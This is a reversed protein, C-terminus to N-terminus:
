AKPQHDGAAFYTSVSQHESPAMRPGPLEIPNCGCIFTRPNQGLDEGVEDWMERSETSVYIPVHEDYKRVERSLFRYIEARTEHPFPGTRVDEMAEAQYRAAAVCEPDLLDLDMKEALGDLSMWMVVCFGVSEPRVRTFIDKILRAYEERWNRVPIMPKFKFRVGVGWDRCKKAAEIRAVPSPASPEITRSASDCTLSWVGILRDRHPVTEIWDVNDSGSHFYGYRDEYEALKSLFAAFAGYEPEFAIIDAGWGILRFCKQGPFKEITPGVVEDMYREIELGIAVVPAGLGVGCYKCGHPCGWMVGFDQTRWCVQNLKCDKEPTHTDRVPEVYGLMTRYAAAPFGEPADAVLRQLAEEDLAEGFIPAFVWPRERHHGARTKAEAHWEMTERAVDPAQDATFIRVDEESRGVAALLRKMRERARPDELAKDLVHVRWPNLDYM